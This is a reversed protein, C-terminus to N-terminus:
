PSPSGFSRASDLASDLQEPVKGTPSGVARYKPVSPVHGLGGEGVGVLCQRWGSGGNGPRGSVM